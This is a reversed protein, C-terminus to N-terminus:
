LRKTLQLCKAIHIKICLSVTLHVEEQQQNDGSANCAPQAQCQDQENFTYNTSWKLVEQGVQNTDMSEPSLDGMYVCLFINM